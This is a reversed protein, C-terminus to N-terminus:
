FQHADHDSTQKSAIQTHEIKVHMQIKLINLHLCRVSELHVRLARLASKAIFIKKYFPFFFVRLLNLAIWQSVESDGLLSHRWVRKVGPKNLSGYCNKCIFSSATGSLVFFAVFETQCNKWTFNTQINILSVPLFTKQKSIFIIDQPWNAYSVDYITM